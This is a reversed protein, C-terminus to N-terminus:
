REGERAKAAARSESIALFVAEESPGRQWELVAAELRRPRELEDSM